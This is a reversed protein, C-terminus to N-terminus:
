RLRPADEPPPLFAMAQQLTQVQRFPPLSALLQRGYGRTRL